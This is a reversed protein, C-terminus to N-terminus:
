RDLMNDPTCCPKRYTPDGDEPHGCSACYRGEKLTEAFRRLDALFRQADEVEAM